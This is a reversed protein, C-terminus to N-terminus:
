VWKILMARVRAVVGAWDGPRRQRVICLSPYWPSDDRDTLWRWCNDFRDLLLVRRGMSAALHAVATDASVVADLNAIIAATDAFDAVAPM